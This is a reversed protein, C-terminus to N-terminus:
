SWLLSTSKLSTFTSSFLNKHQFTTSMQIEQKWKSGATHANQTAPSCVLCVNRHIWVFFVILLHSSILYSSSFYYTNINIFHHNQHYSIGQLILTWLQAHNTGRFDWLVGLLHLRWAACWFVSVHAIWSFHPFLFFFNKEFKKQKIKLYSEQPTSIIFTVRSESM